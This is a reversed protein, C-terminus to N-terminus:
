GMFGFDQLVKTVSNSVNERANNTYQWRPDKRLSRQFDYLTQEGTSTFASRLTPDDLTIANPDVELTKAMASKYPSYITELDTGDAMMKKVNDPLGMSATARIQNKIIDPKTGNQIATTYADLQSQSLTLGNAKATTILDQGAITRVDQKKTKLEESLKGLINPAVPQKKSNLYTGTKIIDEIFQEPVIGGTIIGDKNIKLNKKEADNLIKTLSSIESSTAERKLLGSFVNNISVEADYKNSITGYPKAAAAGGAGGAAGGLLKIQRSQDDLFTNLTGFEKNAGYASQAKSIASKYALLLADTYEGVEPAVIGAANLKKGLDILQQSTAKKLEARSNKLTDAFDEVQLQSGNNPQQTVVGGPKTSVKFSPEVYEQPNAIKGQLKNISDQILKYEESSKANSLAAQLEALSGQNAKTSISKYNKKFDVTAQNEIASTEEKISNYAIRSSEISAKIDEVVGPTASRASVLAKKAADLKKGAAEMKKRAANVKSNNKLYGELTPESAM